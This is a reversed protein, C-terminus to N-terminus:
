LLFITWYDKGSILTEWEASASGDNAGASTEFAKNVANLSLTTTRSKALNESLANIISIISDKSLKRSDGFWLGDQGIIGSVTINELEYCGTFVNNFNTDETVRFVEVTKLKRCDRYTQYYYGNPNIGIDEVEELESCGRFILYNGYSSETTTVNYKSFDFYEKEIIKLKNCYQFMRISRQNVANTSDTTKPLVVKYKPRIYKQGWCAFAQEYNTRKGGQQFDDWFADYFSKGGTDIGYMIQELQNNLASYKNEVETKGAEYVKQENEAITTFKDLISM